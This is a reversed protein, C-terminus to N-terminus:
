AHLSKNSEARSRATTKDASSKILLVPCPARRSVYEAVSGLLMRGIGTRGATGMVILDCNSDIAEDVILSEADGQRVIRQIPGGISATAEALRSSAADLSLEDVDPPVPMGGIAMVAPSPVVHMAVVSAGFAGAITKATELAAM